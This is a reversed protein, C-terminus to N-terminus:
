CAVNGRNIYATSGCSVWQSGSSGREGRVVINPCEPVGGTHRQTIKSPGDMSVFLLIDYGGMERCWHFRLNASDPTAQGKAHQLVRM